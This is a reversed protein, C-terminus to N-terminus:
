APKRYITPRVANLRTTVGNLSESHGVVFFGGPKLSPLMNEVVKRKTETDFYIM